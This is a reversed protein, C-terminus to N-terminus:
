VTILCYVLRYIFFAAAPRAGAIWSFAIFIRAININSHLRAAAGTHATV